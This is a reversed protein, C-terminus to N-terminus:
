ICINLLLTLYASFLPKEMADIMGSNTMIGLLVGASLLTIAM